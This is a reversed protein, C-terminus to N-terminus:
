VVILVIAEYIIELMASVEEVTACLPPMLTVVNAIPRTLLGLHQAQECIKVGIAEEWPYDTKDQPRQIEIGIFYGLQRIERVCSLSSIKTLLPQLQESTNKVHQPLNNQQILNINALAVACGLQNGTYSHGHFFTKLEAYEGEFAQYIEESAITAALPLYGGTLGKALCLIDPQVNELEYGFLAGTRGWATAVEDLILYIGHPHLLQEIAKLAGPAMVRMGGTGQVMPEIILGIIEGAHSELLKQLIELSRNKDQTTPYPIVLTEFLLPAYIQHFREIGSVSVAGLTDGHYGMEARIFYKKRTQKNNHCAQYAMKLAVEISTAGSDSYFVKTLHPHTIAVLKDALEIAPINASGLLTSHAISNLQQAIAQNLVPHNHGHINLWMSAYGDLYRKGQTDYLYVGEGKTIIVPETQKFSQMQTFPLWLNDHLIQALHLNTSM